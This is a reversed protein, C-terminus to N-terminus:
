YPSEGQALRKNIDECVSPLDAISDVVYHAGAKWLIEKTKHLRKQIEEESLQAEEELSNINMYNSYRAVGVSWCGAEQAEHIGSTTDDVKVVAQIPHVDLMDLNRYLM